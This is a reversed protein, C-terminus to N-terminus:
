LSRCLILPGSTILTMFIQLFKIIAEAAPSESAASDSFADSVEGADVVCAYYVKLFFAQGLEHDVVSFRRFIERPFCFPALLVRRFFDAFGLAPPLVM